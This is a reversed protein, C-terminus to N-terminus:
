LKCGISRLFIKRDDFNFDTTFHRVSTIIPDDFRILKTAKLQVSKSTISVVELLFNSTRVKVKYKPHRTIVELQCELYKFESITLYDLLNNSLEFDKLLWSLVSKYHLQKM